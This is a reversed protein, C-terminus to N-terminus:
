PCSAPYSTQFADAGIVVSLSGTTFRSVATLHSQKEAGYVGGSVTTNLNLFAWGFSFPIPFDTGGVEVSGSEAAFPKKDAEMVEASNEEEDFVLVQTHGLPAYDPPSDCAFAEV